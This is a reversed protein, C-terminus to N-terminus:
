RLRRSLEEFFQRRYNTQGAMLTHDAGEYVRLTFNSKGAQRFSDQLALASALPVSDDNEGFGAFVPISLSLYDPTPDIDMVDFWYRHPHGLWTREISNADAAIARWGEDVTTQGMLATLSRRMTWGGDGIIALDTVDDRSRAVKVAVYAGESIGLLVVKRPRPQAQQLQSTIFEMYDSVWQRPHNVRAFADSCPGDPPTDAVHRKNLALVTVRGALGAFYDPVYPRWSVCGSGGYAFVYTDPPADAGIQFRYYLAGEGDAYTFTYRAVTPTTAEQGFLPLGMPALCILSLAVSAVASRRHCARSVFAWTSLLM